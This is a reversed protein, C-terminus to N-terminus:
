IPLGECSSLACAPSKWDSMCLGGLRSQRNQLCRHARWRHILAGFAIDLVISCSELKWGEGPFSCALSLCRLLVRHDVAKVYRSSTSLRWSTAWFRRWCSSTMQCQVSEIGPSWDCTATTKVNFLENRIHSGHDCSWRIYRLFYVKCVLVWLFLSVFTSVFACEAVIQRKALQCFLHLHGQVMFFSASPFYYANPHSQTLM